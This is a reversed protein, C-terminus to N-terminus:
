GRTPFDDDDGWSRGALSRQRRKKKNLVKPVHELKAETSKEMRSAEGASGQSKEFSLDDVGAHSWGLRSLESFAVAFSTLVVIFSSFLLSRYWDPWMM